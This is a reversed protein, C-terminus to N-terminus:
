SGSTCGPHLDTPATGSSIPPDELEMRLWLVTWLNELAGHLDPSRYELRCRACMRHLLDSTGVRVGEVTACEPCAPRACDECLWFTRRGCRNCPRFGGEHVHWSGMRRSHSGNWRRDVQGERSFGATVSRACAAPRPALVESALQIFLEMSDHFTLVAAPALSEPCLVAEVGLGHLYRIFAVWRLVPGSPM